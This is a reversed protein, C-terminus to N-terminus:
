LWRRVRAAYRRYDDGFLGLMAVEEPAIQFRGIYLVFLPLGAFAWLASLHVAWALLLLLMGLYMPNRTFRYIGGTVLAAAKRPRLPNLTTRSARFALLGSLDLGLGAAVLVGTLGHRALDALPLAPGVRALGAMLVATLLGVVPPPIRHDLWHRRLPVPKM